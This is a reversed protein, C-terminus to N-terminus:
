GLRRLDLFSFILKGVLGRSNILRKGLLPYKYDACLSHAIVQELFENLPFNSPTEGTLTAMLTLKPSTVVVSSIAIDPIHYRSNKGSPVSIGFLVLLVEKM